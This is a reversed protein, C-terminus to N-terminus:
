NQLKDLKNYWSTAVSTTTKLGNIANNFLNRTYNKQQVKADYLYNNATDFYSDAKLDYNSKITEANNSADKLIDQYNQNSTLSDVQFGQASNRAKLQNAQALGQLKEKRAEDIGLQKQRLAENSAAKANNMAAQIRYQSNRQENKFDSISNVGSLVTDFIGFAGIGAPSCM